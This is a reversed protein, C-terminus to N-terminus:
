CRIQWHDKALCGESISSTGVFYEFFENRSASTCQGRGWSKQLHVNGFASALDVVLTGAGQDMEEVNYNYKEKGLLADM